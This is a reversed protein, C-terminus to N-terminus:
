QKMIRTVKDGAKVIYSGSALNSINLTYNTLGEQIDFAEQLVANGSMDYVAITSNMSKDSSYDITFIGTSSPNPYVKIYNEYTTVVPAVAPKVSKDTAANNSKRDASSGMTTTPSQFPLVKTILFTDGLCGNNDTVILQDIVESNPPSVDISSTISGDFWNYEGKWSSTITLLDGLFITHPEKKNVNKMLTIRDRVAGDACVWDADLRNGDVKIVMAGGVSNNSYVMANHTWGPQVTGLKSSSGIVAYVTGAKQGENKIYPCSNSTGDYRASSNSIAQTGINFSAENGYHGNLMYSREYVNSHSTLVLDVGYRELIRLFNQRLAVLDANSDSNDSGMTYPSQNWYVVTWRLKNATLDNKIWNVQPGTTDFLRYANSEKGYSDLSLFHINGYDYSYFAETGSPVGGSEGASPLTFINYYPIAHDNQRAPNKAYDADGPAPFLTTNNLFADQYPNFFNNQYEIDTGTNAANNGLLLMADAHESGLYSLVSNRVSTQIASSTGCDGFVVFRSVREATKAPTTNFYINSGGKLTQTAPVTNGISYYYKTEKDLGTITIDHETVMANNTITNTLSGDVTGYKVVSNTAIDTRWRVHISQQSAAQLYPGRTLNANVAPIENAVLRLDFSIDDNSRSFQHIEVAIIHNGTPLTSVPLTKSLVATGDDAADTSALSRYGITGTPMNNRYVEIGDIYVVIGDDRRVRLTYDSYNSTSGITIKKRFYTTVHKNNCTNVPTCGANVVTAEDGDGYGFEGIGSTWTGDAFSFNRWATGQNSGNALFKWTAGFPIINVAAHTLFHLSIAMFALTIKKM